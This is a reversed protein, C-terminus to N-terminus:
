GPANPLPPITRLYAIVAALDDPTMKALWAYPMPPLMKSGDPQTGDTIMTAIEDDTFNKLGDESTTINASVSEGM